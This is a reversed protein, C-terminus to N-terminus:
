AAGRPTATTGQSGHSSFDQRDSDGARDAKVSAAMAAFCLQDTKRLVEQNKLPKIIYQVERDCATRM